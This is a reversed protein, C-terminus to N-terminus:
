SFPSSHFWRPGLRHDPNVCRWTARADSRAEWPPAYDPVQIRGGGVESSDYLYGEVWDDGPSVPNYLTQRGVWSPFFVQLVGSSPRTVYVRGTVTLAAYRPPLVVVGGADPVLERAEISAVVAAFEAARFPSEREIPYYCAAALAVAAFLVGACGIALRSARGSRRVAPRRATM